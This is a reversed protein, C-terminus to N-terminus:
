YVRRTARMPGRPLRLAVLWVLGNLAVTVIPAVLFVVAIRAPQNTLAVGAIFTGVTWVILASVILRLAVGPPLWRVRLSRTTVLLVLGVLIPTLAMLAIGLGFGGVNNPNQDTTVTVGPTGATLTVIQGRWFGARVVAPSEGDGVAADFSANSPFSPYTANDSGAPPLDLEISAGGDDGTDDFVGNEALLEMTGVCDETTTTLDVGAACAPAKALTAGDGYGDAARSIGDALALMGLVILITVFTIRLVLPWRRTHPPEFMPM